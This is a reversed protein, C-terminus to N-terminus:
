RRAAPEAWCSLHFHRALFAFGSIFVSIGLSTGGNGLLGDILGLGGEFLGAFHGVAIDLEEVGGGIGVLVAEGVDLHLRHFEGLEVDVGAEGKGALEERHLFRGSNKVSCCSKARSCASVKWRWAASSM